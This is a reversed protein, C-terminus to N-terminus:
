SMQEVLKEPELVDGGSIGYHVYTLRCQSNMIFIAPLQKKDGEDEGHIFGAAKAMNIILETKPDLLEEETSAPSIEFQKYLVQEPDCIIDFPFNGPIHQAALRGPDSQLVILIQGGRKKMADYNDAYQHMAYQSLTCGYFRLFILATKGSVRGVTEKLTRGTEFPTAFSFDPMDCGKTLKSM